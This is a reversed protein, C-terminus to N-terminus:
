AASSNGFTFTFLGREGAAPDAAVSGSNMCQITVQAGATLQINTVSASQATVGSVYTIPAAVATGSPSVFTVHTNLLRQYNDNFVFTYNGASNRTVSKVGKFGNTASAYATPSGPGVSGWSELTPAGTTGIFVTAYIDVIQKELALRFQNYFRNAM